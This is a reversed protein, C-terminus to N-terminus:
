DGIPLGIINGDARKADEVVLDDSAAVVAAFGVAVRGGVGFKQGDLFGRLEQIRAVQIVDRQIDRQLRTRHASAGDPQRANGANDEARPVLTRARAARDEVDRAVRSQIVPRLNAAAHQFFFAARQQLLEKLLLAAFFLTQSVVQRLLPAGTYDENSGSSFVHLTSFLKKTDLRFLM